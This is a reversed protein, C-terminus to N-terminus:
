GMSEHDYSLGFQYGVDTAPGPYSDPNGWIARRCPTSDNPGGWLIRGLRLASKPSPMARAGLLGCGVNHCIRAIVMADATDSDPFRDMGLYNPTPQPSTEEDSEGCHRCRGDYSFGNSGVFRSPSEINVQQAWHTPSNPVVRRRNLDTRHSTGAGM